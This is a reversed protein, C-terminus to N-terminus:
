LSFEDEFMTSHSKDLHLNPRQFARRVENLERLLHLEGNWAGNPEPLLNGQSEAHIPIPRPDPLVQEFQRTM